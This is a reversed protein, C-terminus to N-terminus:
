WLHQSQCCITLFIWWRPNIPLQPNPNAVFQSSSGSGVDIPNNPLRPATEGCVQSATELSVGSDFGCSAGPYASGSDARVHVASRLGESFSNSRPSTAISSIDDLISSLEDDILPGQQQEKINIQMPLISSPESPRRPLSSLSRVPQNWCAVPPSLIPSSMVSVSGQRESAITSHLLDQKSALQDQKRQLHSQLRTVSLIENQLVEVQQKSALTTMHSHAQEQQATLKQLSSELTTMHSQAQEQKATLKQLSSEFRAELRMFFNEMRFDTVEQRQQITKIASYISTLDSFFSLISFFRYLCYQMCDCAM